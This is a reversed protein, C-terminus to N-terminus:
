ITPTNRQRCLLIIVKMFLENTVNRMAFINNLKEILKDKGDEEFKFATSIKFQRVKNM